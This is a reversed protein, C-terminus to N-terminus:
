KYNITQFLPSIKQYKTICSDVLVNIKSLWEDLVEKEEAYYNELEQEFERLYTEMKLLAVSKIKGAVLLLVSYHLDFHKPVLIELPIQNPQTAKVLNIYHVNSLNEFTGIFRIVKPAEADNLLFLKGTLPILCPDFSRNGRLATIFSHLVPLSLEASIVKTLSVGPKAEALANQPYNMVWKGNQLTMMGLHHRPKPTRWRALPANRYSLSHKVLHNIQNLASQPNSSALNNLYDPIMSYFRSFRYLSIYSTAHPGKLALLIEVGLKAAPHSLYQRSPQAPFYSAWLGPIADHDKLKRLLKLTLLSLREHSINGGFLEQSYKSALPSFIRRLQDLTEPDSMPVTVPFTRVIQTSMTEMGSFLWIKVGFFVVSDPCVPQVMTAILSQVKKLEVFSRQIPSNPPTFLAKCADLIKFDLYRANKAIAIIVTNMNAKFQVKYAPTELTVLEDTYNLCYSGSSTQSCGSNLIAALTILAPILKKPTGEQLAQKIQIELTDPFPLQTPYTIYDANPDITKFLKLWNHSPLAENTSAVPNLNNILLTM